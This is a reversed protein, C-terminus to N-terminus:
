DTCLETKEGDSRLRTMAIARSRDAKMQAILNLGCIQAARQADEASVDEGVM